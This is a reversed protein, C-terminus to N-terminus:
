DTKLKERYLHPYPCALEKLFCSMELQLSEVDKGDATSSLSEELGCLPQIQSSLWICLECFDESALGGEAAKSLADEDLLPGKYGLAELVDLIDCEMKLDQALEKM